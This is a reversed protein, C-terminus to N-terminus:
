IGRDDDPFGLIGIWARPAWKPVAVNLVVVFDDEDADEVRGDNGGRKAPECGVFSSRGAELEFRAEPWGFGELISFDFGAAGGFERGPFGDGMVLLSPEEFELKDASLSDDAVLHGVRRTARGTTTGIERGPGKTTLFGRLLVRVRLLLTVGTLRVRRLIM